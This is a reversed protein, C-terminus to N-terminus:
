QQPVSPESVRPTQDHNGANTIVNLVIPNNDEDGSLEQKPSYGDKKGKRELFWVSADYDGSRVKEIVNAKAQYKSQSKLAEKRELYEPHEKQYNYLTAPSINAIFCAEVDTADNSFAADLQKLVLETMVTPRGANSKIPEIHPDQEDNIGEANINLQVEESM